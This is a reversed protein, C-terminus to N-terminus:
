EAHEHNHGDHRHLELYKGQPGIGELHVLQAGHHAALGVAGAAGGLVLLVAVEAWWRGRLLFLSTAKLGTGALALWLTYAAYAEHEQLWMAARPSIDDTTHPHAYSGSVYAGVLGLAVLALTVWGLERKLVFLGVLQTLAALILLVIPFHVILPHLSPFESITADWHAAQAPNASVTPANKPDAPEAGHARHTTDAIKKQHPEDGHASAPLTFFILVLFALGTATLLQLRTMRCRTPLYLTLM